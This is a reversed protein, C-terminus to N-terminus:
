QVVRIKTARAGKDHDLHEFEVPVGPKLTPFVSVGELLATPLFFRDNGDEGRIFGFTEREGGKAKCLNKITGTM